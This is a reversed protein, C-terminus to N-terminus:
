YRLWRWLEALGPRKGYLLIGVRYIKAAARIVLYTSAALIGLSIAVEGGTAGGLVYRMPMLIASSFPIMTMAQAVSGRPDNAVLQMCTMPIIVLMMVPAQAQQAEQDSSVMAGVAAYMAAYFFYGGLFYAIAVAIQDLTLSPLDPGGGTVGFMHLISERYTLALLAMLLWTGLQLLGIAGVGLIKGGMLDRPKAAAVMLEIVRSTKEQVVSRMVAVGYLLIAIYLIFMLIYGVAFAGFGSKGGKQGTSLRLDLDVKALVTALQEGSIGAKTARTAYVTADVVQHMKVLVATSSANDGQYVIKGGAAADAPVDLFGNTTKDAIHELLKAEPTGTPVITATWGVAGFALTLAPGLAGSTRDVIEVKVKDGGSRALVAPVVILAIMMLPGLLTVIVFWKSRVRELFERRAIVLASRMRAKREFRTR